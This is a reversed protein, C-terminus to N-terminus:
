KNVALRVAIRVNKHTETISGDALASAVLRFATVIDVYNMLEAIASEVTSHNTLVTQKAHAKYFIDLRYGKPIVNSMSGGALTATFLVRGM